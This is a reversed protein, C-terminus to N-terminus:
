PSLFVRQAQLKLVRDILANLDAGQEPALRTARRAVVWEGRLVNGAIEVRARVEGAHNSLSDLTLVQDRAPEHLKLALSCRYEVPRPLQYGQPGPDLPRTWDADRFPYPRVITRGSARRFMGRVTMEYSITLSDRNVSWSDVDRQLDDSLLAAIQERGVDALSSGLRVRERQDYAATGSGAVIGTEMVHGDFSLSTVRPLTDRPIWALSDAGGLWLTPAGQLGWPIEGPSWGRGTADFYVTDGRDVWGVIAHNFQGPDPYEPWFRSTAPYNTLVPRAEVGRRGLEDVILLALDKCDGYKNARIEELSHPVIRGEGIEVAVYRYNDEYWPLFSALVEGGPADSREGTEGAYVDGWKETVERAVDDWGYDEGRKSFSVLVRAVARQYGGVYPRPEWVPIDAGAVVLGPKVALWPGGAYPVLEVDWGAPARVSVRLERVPAHVEQVAPSLFHVARELTSEFEIAVVSGVAVEALTWEAVYTDSYLVADERHASVRLTNHPLKEVTRDPRLLFSREADINGEGAFLESTRFSSTQGRGGVQWAQREHLVTRDHEADLRIHLHRYLLRDRAPLPEPLSRTRSAAWEPFRATSGPGAVAVAIVAALFGIRFTGRPM